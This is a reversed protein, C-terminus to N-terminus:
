SCFEKKVGGINAPKNTVAMINNITVHPIVIIISMLVISLNSSGFPLVMVM